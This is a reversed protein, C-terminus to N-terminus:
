ESGSERERGLQRFFETAEQGGKEKWKRRAAEIMPLLEADEQSELWERVAETVLENPTMKRRTAETQIAQSLAEDELTVTMQAM